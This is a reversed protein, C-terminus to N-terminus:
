PFNSIIQFRDYLKIKEGIIGLCYLRIIRPPGLLHGPITRRCGRIEFRRSTSTVIKRRNRHARGGTTPTPTTARARVCPREVTCGASCSSSLPTLSFCRRHPYRRSGVSQTCNGKVSTRLRQYASVVGPALGLWCLGRAFRVIENLRSGVDTSAREDGSGRDSWL